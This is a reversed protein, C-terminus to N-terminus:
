RGKRERDMAEQIEPRLRLLYDFAFTGVGFLIIVPEDVIVAVAVAIAIIFVGTIVAIKKPDCNDM